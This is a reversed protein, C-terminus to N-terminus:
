GLPLRSFLFLFAIAGLLGAGTLAVEGRHAELVRVLRFRTARYPLDVAALGLLTVSALLSLMVAVILWSIGEDAVIWAPLERSLRGVPDDVLTVPERAIVGKVRGFRPMLPFVPTGSLLLEAKTESRCNGWPVRAAPHVGRADIAIAVSPGRLPAARATAVPVITYTGPRLLRGRIRGRFRVSNLGSHGAIAFRGALSCSPAPGFVLFTVRASGTLVFRLRVTLDKGHGPLREIRLQELLVTPQGRGPSLILASTGGVRSPDISVSTAAISGGDASGFFGSATAGAGARSYTRQVTPRSASSPDGTESAGVPGTGITTSTTTSTAVTAASTTVPVSPGSATVTAVSTTVATTSPVTVPVTATPSTVTATPSTVTVTPSTVTVTPSTVTATPSTVTATPSTVTTSTPLTVTATTIPTSLTVTPLGIAGPHSDALVEAGFFGAVAVCVLAIVALRRV